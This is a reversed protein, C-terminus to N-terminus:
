NPQVQRKRLFNLLTAISEMKTEIIFTHVTKTSKANRSFTNSTKSNSQTKVSLTLLKAAGSQTNSLLIPLKTKSQRRASLIAPFYEDYSPFLPHVFIAFVFLHPPSPDFIPLKLSCAKPIIGNTKERFPITFSHHCRHFSEKKDLSLANNKSFNNFNRSMANKTLTNSM